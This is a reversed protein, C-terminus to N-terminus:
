GVMVAANEAGIGLGLITIGELEPAADVLAAEIEDRVADVDITTPDALMLQLRAEAGEVRASVIAVGRGTLPARLAEVAGRVRTQLDQPHLGHLLLVARLHPDEALRTVLTGSEGAAIAMARALALGHLDLVLELLARAPEQARKDPLADLAEILAEIRRLSEAVDGSM